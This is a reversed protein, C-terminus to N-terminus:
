LTGQMIGMVQMEEDGDEDEVPDNEFPLSDFAELDEAADDNWAKTNEDKDLVFGQQPVAVADKAVYLSCKKSRTTSHGKKGCHPCISSLRKTKTKNNGNDADDDGDNDDLV